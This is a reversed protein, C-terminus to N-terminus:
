LETLTDFIELLFLVRNLCTNIWLVAITWDHFWGNGVVVAVLFFVSFSLHQINAIPKLVLSRERGEEEEIFTLDQKNTQAQDFNQDRYTSTESTVAVVM